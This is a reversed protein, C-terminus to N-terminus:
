CSPNAVSTIQSVAGSSFSCPRPRLSYLSRYVIVNSPANHRVDCVYSPAVSVILGAYYGVKREDGGTIDLESILQLAYSNSSRANPSLLVPDHIM